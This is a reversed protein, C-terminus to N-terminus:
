SCATCYWAICIYATCIICYMYGEGATCGTCGTALLWAPGTTWGSTHGACGSTPNQPGTSFGLPGGATVRPLRSEHSSGLLPTATLLTCAAHHCAPIHKVLPTNSSTCNSYCCYPGPRPSPYACNLDRKALPLTPCVMPLGICLQPSVEFPLQRKTSISSVQVFCDGRQWPEM